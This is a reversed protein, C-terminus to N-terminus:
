AWQYVSALILPRGLYQSPLHSMCVIAASSDASIPPCVMHKNMHLVEQDLDTIIYIATFRVLVPAQKSHTIGFFKAINYLHCPQRPKVVEGISKYIYWASDTCESTVAQPTHEGRISKPSRLRGQHGQKTGAGTVWIDDMMIPKKKHLWIWLTKESLRSHENTEDSIGLGLNIWNWDRRRWAEKAQVSM